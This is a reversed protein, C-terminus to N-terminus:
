GAWVSDSISSPGQQATEMLLAGDDLTAAGLADVM